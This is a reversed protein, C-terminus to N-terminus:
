RRPRAVPGADAILGVLFGQTEATRGPCARGFVDDRVAHRRRQPHRICEWILIKHARALVKVAEAPGIAATPAQVAPDAAGGTLGPVGTAPEQAGTLLAPPLTTVAGIIRRTVTPALAAEGAAVARIADALRDPSTNKLVFGSAGARLSAYVYEDLDFTTLMLM